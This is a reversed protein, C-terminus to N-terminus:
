GGAGIRVFLLPTTVLDDDLIQRHRSGDGCAVAVLPHFAIVEFLEREHTQDLRGAPPHRVTALIE